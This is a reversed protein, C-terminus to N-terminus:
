GELKGILWSDLLIESLFTPAHIWRTEMTPAPGFCFHAQQALLFAAIGWLREEHRKYGVRTAIPAFTTYVWLAGLFLASETLFLAVPHDFMGAGLHTSDMPTIKIDKRHSPVELLFHSLTVALLIAEDKASVKRETTFMYATAVAVGLVAMGLLSHSFPYNTAYPFCGRSMLGKDVSFSELGLLSLTFFTADPLAGALALLWLPIGPAFPKAVLGPAFHAIWM